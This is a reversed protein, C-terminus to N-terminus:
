PLPKSRWENDCPRGCYHVERHTLDFVFSYQTAGFEMGGHRCPSSIPHGDPMHHDALIGKVDQVLDGNKGMLSKGLEMLREWRKADQQARETDPQPLRTRYCTAACFPTGPVETGCRGGGRQLWAIRGSTDTFVGNSGRGVVPVDRSLRIVDGLTRCNCFVFEGFLTGTIGRNRELTDIGNPGSCGGTAIGSPTIGAAFDQPFVPSMRAVGPGDPDRGIELALPAVGKPTTDLNQGVVTHGNRTIAFGSCNAPIVKGLMACINLEVLSEVSVGLGRAIGKTHESNRGSRESYCTTVADIIEKAAPKERLALSGGYIDFIAQYNDRVAEGYQEAREALHGNTEVVTLDQTRM